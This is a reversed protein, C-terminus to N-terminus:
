FFWYTPYMLFTDWYLSYIVSDFSVNYKVTLHPFNRMLFCFYTLPVGGEHIVAKLCPPKHLEIFSHAMGHLAVWPLCTMTSLDSLIHDVLFPFPSGSWCEQRLVGMFLIFLCSSIVGPSSSVLDTPTWYSLPFSCLFLELFFSSAPGFHFHHETTSTDPPSLLTQHQLSCYHM